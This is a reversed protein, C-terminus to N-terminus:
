KYVDKRHDITIIEVVLENDFVNYIVRYKGVRIRFGERGKLKIYGHPRPNESLSSIANKINSYYPEYVKDLQKLSQKSFSVTYTM